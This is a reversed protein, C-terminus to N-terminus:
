TELGPLAGLERAVRLREQATRPAYGFVEELYELAHVYGLGRWINAGEARRLWRAEEADLGARQRALRRLQRDIEQHSTAAIEMDSAWQGESEVINHRFMKSM